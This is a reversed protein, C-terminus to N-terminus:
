QLNVIHNRDMRNFTDPRSWFGYCTIGVMMWEFFVQMLKEKIAPFNVNKEKFGMIKM